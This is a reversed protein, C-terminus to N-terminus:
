LKVAEAHVEHRSAAQAKRGAGAATARVHECFMDIM